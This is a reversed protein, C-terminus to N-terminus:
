PTAVQVVEGHRMLAIRDAMALAEEPDHTVFVATAERASLLALTDERVTGRLHRDLGSFPEDFLVVAPAPLLARALAVRQQEGGSLQHPYAREYGALGVSKLAAAATDRAKGRVGYAVNDLIRMHPFLALDQFVLGLPRTEAPEFRTDDAVVQGAVRVTGSAQRAIGAAIRLLTTKGCGSPGLMCVIERPMVDLSVGKLITHGEARHVISDLSLRPTSAAAMPARDPTLDAKAATM